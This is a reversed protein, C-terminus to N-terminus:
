RAGSTPPRVSGDNGFIVGAEEITRKIAGLTAPIPEGQGNEFRTITSVGVKANAALERVGWGLAARAMKSQTPTIM